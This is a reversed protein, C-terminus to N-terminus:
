SSRVSRRRRRRTLQTARVPRARTAPAHAPTRAPPPAQSIYQGFGMQTLAGWDKYTLAVDAGPLLGHSKAYGTLVIAFWGFM